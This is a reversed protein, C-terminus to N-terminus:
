QNSVFFGCGSLGRSREHPVVRQADFSRASAQQAPSHPSSRVLPGPAGFNRRGTPTPRGTPDQGERGTIRLKASRMSRAVAGNGTWGTLGATVNKVDYWLM